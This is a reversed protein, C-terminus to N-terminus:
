WHLIEIINSDEQVDKMIRLLTLNFFVKERGIKEMSFYGTKVLQNLFRAAKDRKWNMSYIVDSISIVPKSFIHPFFEPSKHIKTLIELHSINDTLEKYLSSVHALVLNALRIISSLDHLFSLLNEENFHLTPSLLHEQYIAPFRIFQQDAFIKINFLRLPRQLEQLGLEHLINSFTYHLYFVKLIPDYTSKNLKDLQTDFQQMISSPIKINRDLFSVIKQMLSSDTKLHWINNLFQLDPFITSDKQIKFFNHALLDTKEKIEEPSSPRTLPGPQIMTMATLFNEGKDLSILTIHMQHIHPWLGLLKKLSQNTELRQLDQVDTIQIM